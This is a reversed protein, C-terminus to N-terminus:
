YEISLGQAKIWEDLEDMRGTSPAHVGTLNYEMGVSAYKGRGFQHFPLLMYKKVGIEKLLSVMAILDEYSDNYGPILPTRVVIEAGISALM